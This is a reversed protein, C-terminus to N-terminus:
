WRLLSLPFTCTGFLSDAASKKIYSQAEQCPLFKFSAPPPLVHWLCTSWREINRYMHVYSASPPNSLCDPLVHVSRPSTLPHGAVREGGPLTWTVPATMEVPTRTRANLARGCKGWPVPGRPHPTAVFAASAGLLGPGVLARPTLLGPLGQASTFGM